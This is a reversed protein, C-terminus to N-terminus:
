SCSRSNSFRNYGNGFVFDGVFVGCWFGDFMKLVDFISVIGRIMM